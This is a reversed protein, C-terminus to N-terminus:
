SQLSRFKNICAEIRDCQNKRVQWQLDHTSDNMPLKRMEEYVTSYEHRLARLIQIVDNESFIQETNTLPNRAKIM